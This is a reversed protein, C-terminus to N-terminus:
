SRSTLEASLEVRRPQPEPTEEMRAITATGDLRASRHLHNVSTVTEGLQPSIEKLVGCSCQYWAMVREGGQTELSTAAQSPEM